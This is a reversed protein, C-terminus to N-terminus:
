IARGTGGDIVIETKTGLDFVIVDKDGFGSVGQKNSVDSGTNVAIKSFGPDFVGFDVIQAVSKDSMLEFITDFGGMQLFMDTVFTQSGGLFIKIVDGDVDGFGM